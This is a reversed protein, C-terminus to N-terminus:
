ASSPMRSKQRDRPSPSTYLLCLCSHLFLVLFGYITFTDPISWLNAIRSTRNRAGGCSYLIYRRIYLIVSLLTHMVHSSTWIYSLPDMSINHQLLAALSLESLSPPDSPGPSMDVQQLDPSDDSILRQLLPQM